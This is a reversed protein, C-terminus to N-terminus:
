QRLNPFTFYLAALYSGRVACSLVERLYQFFSLVGLLRTVLGHGLALSIELQLMPQVALVLGLM